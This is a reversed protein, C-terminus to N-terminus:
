LTFPDPNPFGRKFIVIGKPPITVTVARDRVTATGQVIEQDLIDGEKLRSAPPLPIKRTVPEASGNVAVLVEETEHLRAFAYFRKEAALEVQAGRRMAVSDHRMRALDAVYAEMEPDQGWPMDARQEEKTKGLSQETGYQLTPIGRVTFLIGLATMLRRRGDAGAISLFRSLDHNDVMTPLLHPNNYRDDRKFVQRLHRMNRPNPTTLMRLIENSPMTGIAKIAEWIRTLFGKSPNTGFVNRLADMLPVDFMGDFGSANQYPAIYKVDGYLVEGLTFFDPGFRKRLQDLLHLWYFKPVHRAADFRYAHAGTKAPWFLSADTLYEAVDPNEQALDPLGLLSGEEMSQESVWSINGQHHFWHHKSPNRTFPHNYATHNVITDFMTRIGKGEARAVLEQLKEMTGFHPNTKYFDTPWYGHYGAHGFFEEQAEMVPSIWITSVGLDKLYDLKQIIGEWDGGHYKEPDRPDVNIDNSKDGNFFRDTMIMYIFEDQWRRVEEDPLTRNTPVGAPILIEDVPGLRWPKEEPPALADTVVREEGENTTLAQVTLPQGDQWGNKRLVEKDFTLEVCSRIPDFKVATVADRWARREADEVRRTESDLLAIGVQWAMRSVGPIGHPLDTRGQPFGTEPPACKILLFLDLFGKEAGSKLHTLDVRFRYPDHPDGEKTYLGTLDRSADYGDYLKKADNYHDWGRLYGKEAAEVTGAAPAPPRPERERIWRRIALETNWALRDM